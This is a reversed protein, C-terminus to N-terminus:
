ALPKTLPDHDLLQSLDQPDPGLLQVEVAGSLASVLAVSQVATIGPASSPQASQVGDLQDVGLASLSSLIAQVMPDGESQGSLLDNLVANDMVLKAGHESFMAPNTGTRQGQLIDLLQALENRTFSQVGLDVTAHGSLQVQDVGMEAMDKLSLHMQPNVGRTQITVQAQADATLWGSAMLVGALEDGLTVSEARGAHVAGFGAASLANVLDQGTLVGPKLQEAAAVLASAGKYTDFFVDALNHVLGDDTHYASLLGVWNGHDLSTGMRPNLDLQVLHHDELTSIEDAESIGNGNADQWLGLSTFSADAANIVGDINTDLAALAEFGNSALAGTPLVTGAGFLEAGNDVQHNGNLDRILFADSSAIWGKLVVPTAPTLQFLHESAQTSTFVGDDNLDLVLPSAGVFVPIQSFSAADVGAMNQIAANTNLASTAGASYSLNVSSNTAITSALTLVIQNGAVSLSSVTVSANNVLASFASASPAHASDLATDYSLVIQTGMAQASQLTPGGLNATTGNATGNTSGAMQQLGVLATLDVASRVQSNMSSLLAQNTADIGLTGLVASSSLDLTTTGTSLQDVKGALLGLATSAGSAGGAQQAAVGLVNLVQVSAKQVTLAAAKDALAATSNQLVAFPDFTALDVSGVGLVKAVDTKAQDMMTKLDTSSPAANAHSSKYAAVRQAVLSAVMTTLPTIVSYGALAVLKGSFPLNTSMDTGGSAVIPVGATNVPLVYAGDTGSLTWAEGEGTDWKGNQNTDTSNLTGDGNSDLFVQAGSIYGDIVKGSTSPATVTIKVEGEDWTGNQDTV